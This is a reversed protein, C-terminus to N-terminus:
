DVGGDKLMGGERPEAHASRTNSAAHTILGAARGGVQRHAKHVIVGQL